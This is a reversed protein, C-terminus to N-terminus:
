ATMELFWLIDDMSPGDYLRFEKTHIDYKGNERYPQGNLFQMGYAYGDEISEVLFCFDNNWTNRVVVLDNYGYTLRLEEISSFANDSPKEKEHLYSTTETLWTM